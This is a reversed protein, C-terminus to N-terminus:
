KQRPSKENKLIKKIEVIGDTRIKGEVVIMQNLKFSRYVLDAM